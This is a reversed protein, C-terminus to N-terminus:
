HLKLVVSSGIIYNWEFCFCLSMKKNLNLHEWVGFPSFNMIKGKWNCKLCHTRMIVGLIIFSPKWTDWIVFLSLVFLFIVILAYNWSIYHIMHYHLTRDYGQVSAKRAAYLPFTQRKEVISNDHLQYFIKLKKKKKQVVTHKM